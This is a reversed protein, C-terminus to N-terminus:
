CSQTYLLTLECNPRGLGGRETFNMPAIGTGDDEVSCYGKSLDVEIEIQSAAADLSNKVLGLVLDTLSTIITTSKVQAAVEPPLPLIRGAGADMTNYGFDIM